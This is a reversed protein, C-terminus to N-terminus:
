MHEFHQKDVPMHIRDNEMDAWEAESPIGYQEYWAEDQSPVDESPKESSFADRLVQQIWQEIGEQYGRYYAGSESMADEVLRVVIESAPLAKQLYEHRPFASECAM